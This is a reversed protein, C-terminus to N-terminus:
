PESECFLVDDVFAAGADLEDPQVFIFLAKVQVAGPPAPASVSFRHWQDTPTNDDAIVIENSSMATGSLGDYFEIKAVMHNRLCPDTAFLPDASSVYSYGSLEYVMGATPAFAQGFGSTGGPQWFPGFAKGAASGTRFINDTWPTSAFANGWIESWGSLSGGADEFGPNTLLNCQAFAMSSVTSLAVVTSLM